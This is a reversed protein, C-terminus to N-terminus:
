TSGFAPATKPTIATPASGTLMATAFPYAHIAFLAAPPTLLIRAACGGRDQKPHKSLFLTWSKVFRM